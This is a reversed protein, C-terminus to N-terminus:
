AAEGLSKRFVNQVIPKIIEGIARAEGVPKVGQQIMVRAGVIGPVREVELRDIYRDDPFGPITQVLLDEIAKIRGSIDSQYNVGLHVTMCLHRDFRPKGQSTWADILQEGAAKKWEAYARTIFRRKTKFDTAFLNNASPPMPLTIALIYM